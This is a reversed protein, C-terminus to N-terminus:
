SPTRTICVIDGRSSRTSPGSRITFPRLHLVTVHIVWETVLDAVNQAEKVRGGLGGDERLKGLRAPVMYTRFFASEPSGSRACYFYICAM